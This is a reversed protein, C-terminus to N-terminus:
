YMKIIELRGLLILILILNYVGHLFIPMLLSKTKEFLYALLWGIIILPIFSYLQLHVIAFLFSSLLLAVNVGWSKKFASYLFGRFFVEESFPGIVAVVVLLINSSISRNGVLIEIKSEPNEIGFLSNMLFMYLFSVFFIALLSLISYWITKAISYYRLGLDRLNSKRRFIAFFWVVGLMLVTQIGYLVTFSSNSINSSNFFQEGDLVEFLKASGFYIGVLAVTLFILSIVADFTNWKINLVNNQKETSNAEKM